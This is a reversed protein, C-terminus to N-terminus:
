IRLCQRAMDSCRIVRSCLTKRSWCFASTTARIAPHTYRVYPQVLSLLSRDTPSPSSAPPPPTNISSQPRASPSSTQSAALTTMTTIHSSLTQSPPPNPPSSLASHPAGRPSARRQTLSSVLAVRASSTPTQAKSPSSTPNADNGGPIYRRSPPSVKGPNGGLIRIVTPSLREVAPLSPLRALQAKLFEDHAAYKQTMTRFLRSTTPFCFRSLQPIILVSVARGGPRRPASTSYLGGGSLCECVHTM